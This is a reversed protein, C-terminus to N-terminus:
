FSSKIVITFAKTRIIQMNHIEDSISKHRKLCALFLDLSKSLDLEHIRHIIIISLMLIPILIAAFLPLLLIPLKEM